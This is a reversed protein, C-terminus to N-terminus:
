NGYRTKFRKRRESADAAKAYGLTTAARAHGLQEQVDAISAGQALLETALTRRVTHPSFEVGTSSETKKVIRYLNDASMAEDDLLNGLNDMPRFVFRGSNIEQWVQLTEIAYEGVISAHRTKKGKALRIYVTGRELDVDRWQLGVVEARRMGTALLLAILARNRISIPDSGNWFNLVRDAEQPTLAHLSRESDSLNEEPAPVMKLYEYSFRAADAGPVLAMIQLLKRIAAYQRNRTARTVQQDRLFALVNEPHLDIPQIGHNSCWDKWLDYTQNYVRQSSNALTNLTARIIQDITELRVLQAM